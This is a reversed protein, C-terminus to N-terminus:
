SVYRERDSVKAKVAITRSTCNTEFIRGTYPMDFAVAHSYELYESRWLFRSV